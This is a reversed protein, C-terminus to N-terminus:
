RNLIKVIIEIPLTIIDIFADFFASLRMCVLEITDM